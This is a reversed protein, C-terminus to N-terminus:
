RPHDQRRTLVEQDRPNYIEAEGTWADVPAARVHDGQGQGGEVLDLEKEAAEDVIMEEDVTAEPARRRLDLPVVQTHILLPPVQPRHPLPPTPDLDPPPPTLAIVAEAVEVAVKVAAGVLLHHHGKDGKKPGVENEREHIVSKAGGHKKEVSRTV